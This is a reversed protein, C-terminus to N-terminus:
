DAPLALQVDNPNLEIDLRVQVPEIGDDSADIGFLAGYQQLLLLDLRTDTGDYVYPETRGITGENFFDDEGAMFVAEDTFATAPDAYFAVIDDLAAAPAEWTIVVDLYNEGKDISFSSASRGRFSISLDSLTLGDALPFAAIVADALPFPTSDSTATDFGIDVTYGALEARADDYAWGNIDETSWIFLPDLTAEVGNVDWTPDATVYVHNVSSPGGRDGPDSATSNKREFGLDTMIPDFIDILQQSGPGNGDLELDIDDVVGGPAVVDYRANWGTNGDEGVFSLIADFQLLSSGDPVPIPVPFGVIDDVAGFPDITSDSVAAHAAAVLDPLATLDFPDPAPAVTTTPADTAPPETAPPQAAATTEVPAQTDPPPADSTATTDDPAQTDSSTGTSSGGCAALALSTAAIASIFQTTYMTSGIHARLTCTTM